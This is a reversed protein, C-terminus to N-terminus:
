SFDKIFMILSGVFAASVVTLAFQKSALFSGNRCKETDKDPDSDGEKKWGCHKKGDKSVAECEPQTTLKSCDTKGDKGETEQSEKELKEKVEKKLECKKAEENFTCGKYELQKCKSEDSKAENCQKQTEDLQAKTKEGESLPHRHDPPAAGLGLNSLTLNIATLETVAAKLQREDGQAKTLEAAAEKLKEMWKIAKPLKTTGDFPYIVCAAGNSTTDADCKGDGGSNLKGLANKHKTNQGKGITIATLVTETAGTIVAPTLEHEKLAPGCAASLKDWDTKLKTDAANTTQTLAPTITGCIDKSDNGGGASVCLCVADAQLSQGALTGATLTNTKGCFDERNASNTKLIVGDTVAPTGLLAAQLAGNVRDVQEQSKIKRADELKQQLLRLTTNLKALTAPTHKAALWQKIQSHESLRNLEAVGTDCFNWSLASCTYNGFTGAPLQKQNDGTKKTQAEIEDKGAAAVAVAAAIKEFEDVATATITQKVTTKAVRIAACLAAFDNANDGATPAAAEANQAFLLAIALATLM